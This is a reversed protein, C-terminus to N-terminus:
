PDAEVAGLDSPNISKKLAMSVTVNLITLILSFKM